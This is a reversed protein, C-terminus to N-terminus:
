KKKEAPLVSPDSLGRLYVVLNWLDETKARTGEAPMTGAGNVILYYIEGDTRKKLTDPERFDKMKLNMSSALDSKGSGDEGHCLACDVAYVKKAREIGDATPKVPNTKSAQDAPVAPVQGPYGAGLTAGAFVVAAITGLIKRM